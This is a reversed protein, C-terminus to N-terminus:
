ICKLSMSMWKPPKQRWGKVCQQCLFHRRLCSRTTVRLGSVHLVQGEWSWLELNIRQFSWLKPQIQDKWLKLEASSDRWERWWVWQRGHFFDLLCFLRVGRHEMKVLFHTPFRLLATCMTKLTISGWFMVESLGRLEILEICSRGKMELKDWVRGYFM